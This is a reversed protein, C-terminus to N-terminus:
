LTCTLEGPVRPPFSPAAGNIAITASRLPRLKKVINGIALGTRQQIFRAVGLAAFV